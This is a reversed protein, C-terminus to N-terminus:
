CAAVIMRKSKSVPARLPSTRAMRHDPKSRSAPVQDLSLASVFCFRWCRTGSDAGARRSRRANVTAAAIRGELRVLMEGPGGAPAVELERSVGGGGDLLLSLGFNGVRAADVERPHGDIVVRYRGDGAREVSVMRSRGNVEIDFTM